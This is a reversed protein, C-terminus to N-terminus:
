FGLSSIVESQMGLTKLRARLVDDSVLWIMLEVAQSITPYEGDTPLYDVATVRDLSDLFSFGAILPGSHELFLNGSV